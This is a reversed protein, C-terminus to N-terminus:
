AFDVLQVGFSEDLSRLSVSREFDWNEDEMKGIEIRGGEVSVAEWSPVPVDLGHELLHEILNVRVDKLNEIAEEMTIGQAICHGFEPNMAIYVFDDEDTTTSDRFVILTYLRSALNKVLEYRDNM